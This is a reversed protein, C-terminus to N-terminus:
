GDDGRRTPQRDEFNAILLTPAGGRTAAPEFSVFFWAGSYGPISTIRDGRAPVYGADDLDVQRFVLYGASKEQIGGRNPSARGVSNWVVQAELTVSAARAVQLVPERARRDYETASTDIPSLTVDVPFLLNPLAM